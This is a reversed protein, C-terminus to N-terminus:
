PGRRRQGSIQPSRRIQRAGFSVAPPLLAPSAVKEALRYLLTAVKSAAIKDQISKM